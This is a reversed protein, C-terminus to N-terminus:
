FQSECLYNDSLVVKRFHSLLITKLFSAGFENCLFGIPIIESQFHCFLNAHNVKESCKKGKIMKKAM